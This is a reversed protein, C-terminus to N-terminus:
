GHCYSLLYITKQFKINWVFGKRVASDGGWVGFVLILSVDSTL